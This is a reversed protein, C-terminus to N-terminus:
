VQRMASFVELPFRCRNPVSGGYEDRRQNTLPSIFSSMLYGHAAHFELMDFGAGEARRTAAFFDAKVQDMDSRTMSRPVQSVGALYPLPSPAILPWDDAQLPM